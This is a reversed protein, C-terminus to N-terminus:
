KRRTYSLLSPHSRPMPNRANFTSVTLTIILEVRYINCRNEPLFSVEHASAPLSTKWLDESGFPLHPYAAILFHHFFRLDDATFTHSLAPHHSSLTVVSESSSQPTTYGSSSEYNWPLQRRNRGGFPSAHQRRLSQEKSPYICRM